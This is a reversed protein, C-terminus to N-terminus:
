CRKGGHRYPRSVNYDMKIRMLKLPDHGQAAVWSLAVSLTARLNAFCSARNRALATHYHLLAVAHPLPYDRYSEGAIDVSGCCDVLLQSEESGDTPIYKAAMWDLIRICGDILEICIGEPKHGGFLAPDTEYHMVDSDCALVYADPRGARYEELAESWESHILALLTEADPEPEWWGHKVATQHIERALLTLDRQM